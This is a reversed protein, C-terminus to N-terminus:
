DAFQYLETIPVTITNNCDFCACGEHNCIGTDCGREACGHACDLDCKSPNTPKVCKSCHCFGLGCEGQTCNYSICREYCGSPNCMQITNLTNLKSPLPVANVTATMLLGVIFIKFM